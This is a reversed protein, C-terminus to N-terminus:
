AATRTPFTTPWGNVHGLPRTFRTGNVAARVDDLSVHLYRETTALSAHGLLEQVARLDRTARYAATAGAHRLSHPNTGTVRTIIKNVSQPHMCGGFRGPFYYGSGYLRELTLLVPMLDDAIPVIREKDGKGKIRLTDGERQRMHLTTLETLRLCALRGLLIMATQELTATLLALQVVDDAALRPMVRPVRISDLAAAPNDLRLGTRQTWGYFSRFAARIAKRSEAALHRRRALYAELDETTVTLIDAHVRNLRDIQGIYARVTAQSHGTALLHNAYRTLM